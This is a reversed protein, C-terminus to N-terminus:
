GKWQDTYITTGREVRRLIIEKLTDGNRLGNECIELFVDGTQRCKGGLVWCQRHRFPNGRGYKLTGFLSEDIEVEYDVGGIKKDKDRNVMEQGVCLRFIEFWHAITKNSLKHEHYGDEGKSAGGEIDAERKIDEYKFRYCFGYLLIIYQRPSIHANYLFTDKNIPIKNGHSCQCRFFRFKASPNNLPFITDMLGGCNDCMATEPILKNKIFFKHQDEPNELQKLLRYLSVKEGPPM